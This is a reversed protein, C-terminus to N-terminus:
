HAFCRAEGTGRCGFLAEGVPNLEVDHVGAAMIGM